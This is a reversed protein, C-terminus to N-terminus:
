RSYFARSTSGPASGGKNVLVIQIAEMRYSYGTSGCPAGNSAWDTWGINQLHVRYYIDYQSASAGTLRIQIAEMRLSKGTTGSVNGEDTWGNQWGIQQIHTRYQIDALPSSIQIAELRLSRGTTGATDGDTMNEQWGFNQVHVSYSVNNTRERFAASVAAGDSSPAEAGKDVLIIQIAEMRCGYGQTGAANGNKAWGMWGINEVQVRYYVDYRDADAGTLCIKIAEMRLGQGTTGATKWSSVQNQWGINEVHTQYAVGVNSNGSIGIRIAEMRLSQGVTGSTEGNSRTKSEWGINQVHAQYSIGTGDSTRSPSEGIAAPFDGYWRDKDVVNQTIGSVKGTSDYQWMQYRASAHVSSSEWEAVWQYITTDYAIPSLVSNWWSTSSYVGADYGAERITSCFTNAISVITSKGAEYQTNDEMDLYVPLALSHGKILRLVHAAERKAGQTDIAYSYLYVGYPIGYKECEAVNFEWKTDDQSSDNDGYGCRIIAFKVGAKKVAAWDIKGQFQSVDIGEKTDKTGLLIAQSDSADAETQLDTKDATNVSITGDKLGQVVTDSEGNAYAEIAAGEQSVDELAETVSQGNIYRFSNMHEGDGALFHQDSVPNQFSEVAIAANDLAERSDSLIDQEDESLSDMTNQVNEIKQSIEAVQDSSCDTIHAAASVLNEVDSSVQVAETVTETDEAKSQPESNETDEDESVSSTSSVSETESPKEMGQESDESIDESDTKQTDESSSSEVQQIQAEGTITQPMAEDASVASVNAFCLSMSLIGASIIRLIKKKM